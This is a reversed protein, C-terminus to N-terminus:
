FQAPSKVSVLPYATEQKASTWPRTLSLNVCEFALSSHVLKLICLGPFPLTKAWLGIPHPILYPLACPHSPKKRRATRASHLSPLHPWQRSDALMCCDAPKWWIWGGCHTRSHEGQSPKHWTLCCKPHSVNLVVPTPSISKLIWGFDGECPALCTFAHEHPNHSDLLSGSDAQSWSQATPARDSFCLLLFIYLHTCYTKLKRCDARQDQRWWPTELRRWWSM